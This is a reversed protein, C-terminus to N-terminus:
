DNRRTLIHGVLLGLVLSGGAILATNNDAYKSISESADELRTKARALKERYEDVVGGSASKLDDLASTVHEGLTKAADGARDALRSTESKIEEGFKQAGIAPSKGINSRSSYTEM